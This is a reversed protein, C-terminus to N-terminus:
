RRGAIVLNVLDREDLLARHFWIGMSMAIANDDFFMATARRALLVGEGQAQEQVSLLKQTAGQTALEDRYAKGLFFDPDGWPERPDGTAVVAVDPRVILSMSYDDGQTFASPEFVGDIGVLLVAGLESLGFNVDVATLVGATLTGSAVPRRQLPGLIRVM